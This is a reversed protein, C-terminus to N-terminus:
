RMAVNSGDIVVPRLACEDESNEEKSQSFSETFPRLLTPGVHAGGRSVLVSLTTVPGQKAERSAGIRVLEGLVKDTDMNPGFQQKVAEVQATSYGLKHFFDLQTELHQPDACPDPESLMSYCTPCSSHHPTNLPCHLHSTLILRNM